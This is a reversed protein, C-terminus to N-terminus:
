TRRRGLETEAERRKGSVKRHAVTEEIVVRLCLLTTLITDTRTVMCSLPSSSREWAATLAPKLNRGSAVGRSM